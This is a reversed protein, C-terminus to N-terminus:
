IIEELKKKLELVKSKVFWFPLKEIEETTLIKGEPLREKLFFHIGEDGEEFFISKREVPVEVGCLQKIIDATASHGIASEFGEKLEKCATARDIVELKIVGEKYKDFNIPVTLTNLLYRKGM